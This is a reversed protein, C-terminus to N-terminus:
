CKIKLLKESTILVIPSKYKKLKLSKFFNRFISNPEAAVILITNSNM